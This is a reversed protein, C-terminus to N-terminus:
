PPSFGTQRRWECVLPSAVMVLPTAEFPPADCEFQAGDSEGLRRQRKRGGVHPPFRWRNDTLLLLGADLRTACMIKQRTRMQMDILEEEKLTERRHHWRRCFALAFVFSEVRKEGEECM